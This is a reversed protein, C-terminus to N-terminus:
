GAAVIQPLFSTALGLLLLFGCLDTVTTLIPGSALAPDVRLRRLVLPVLGGVSVAVITNLMMAGGVVLGLYPNGKWLWAAGGLLAGLALGNLSGVSVEKLWVRLADAPRILGLTLERLSVAVAQNGSCGSMDSLIPLFVALAIVATLTDQYFAIVSAAIVNLVVNASLWSLRRGARGALPMTRLEESIIGRAKMHDNQSREDIAERVDTQQVVGLLQDRNGVVPIGYYPHRDFLDDLADLSMDDRVRVPDPIMLAGLRTDRAALVLDRLRLVGLLRRGKATVYMYQVQFGAFREANRELDALVSRVTAHEPYAVVETAMLGGAETPAYRALSRVARAEDTDLRELVAAAQDEDMHALVDVQDDSALEHVIAAADSPALLELVQGAQQEAIAEILIAARAPALLTLVQRTQDESLHALMRGADGPPLSALFGDLGELDGAEALEAVRVWPREMVAEM